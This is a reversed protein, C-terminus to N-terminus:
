PLPPVRSSMSPASLIMGKTRRVAESVLERMEGDHLVGRHLARDQCRLLLRVWLGGEEAERVCVRDEDAGDELDACAHTMSQTCRSVTSDLLLTELVEKVLDDRVGGLPVGGAQELETPADVGRPRLVM